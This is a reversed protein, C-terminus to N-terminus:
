ETAEEFTYISNQTALVVEKGLTIIEKLPSARYASDVDTSVIIAPTGVVAKSLFYRKGVPVVQSGQVSNLKYPKM